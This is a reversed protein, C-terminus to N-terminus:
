KCMYLTQQVFWLVYISVILGGGRFFRFLLRLLRPRALLQLRFADYVVKASMPFFMRRTHKVRYFGVRPVM